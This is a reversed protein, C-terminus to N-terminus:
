GTSASRNLAIKKKLDYLCSEPNKIGELCFLHRYFRKRKLDEESIDLLIGRDCAFCKEPQVDFETGTKRAVLIESSNLESNHAPETETEQPTIEIEEPHYFVIRGRDSKLRAFFDIKDGSNLPHRKRTGPTLNLYFYDNFFVRDIYGSKFSVLFGLFSMKEKKHFIKKRLHPKISNVVGGVTVRKTLLEELWVDYDELERKFIKFGQENLLVEPQYCLKEEYYYKCSFCSKGVHKYRKPCGNGKNLVRCKWQFYICGQPFCKKEKLVHYVSVSNEFKFHSTHGCRFVDERKHQNVLTRQM